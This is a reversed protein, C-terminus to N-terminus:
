RVTPRGFEYKKSLRDVIEPLQQLYDGPFTLFGTKPDRVLGREEATAGLELFLMVDSSVWLNQHYYSHGLFSSTRREAPGIDIIQAGSNIM